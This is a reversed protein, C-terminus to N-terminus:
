LLSVHVFITINVVTSGEKYQGPRRGPIVIVEYLSPSPNYERPRCWLKITVIKGMICASSM